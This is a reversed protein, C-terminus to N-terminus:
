PSSVEDPPKQVPHIEVHQEEPVWDADNAGLQLAAEFVKRGDLRFSGDEDAEDQMVADTVPVSVHREEATTRRLRVSISYTKV